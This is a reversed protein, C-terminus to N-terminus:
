SILFTNVSTVSQVLQSYKEVEVIISVLLAVGGDTKLFIASKLCKQCQSSKESQCTDDM